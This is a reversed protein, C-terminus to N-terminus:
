MVFHYMWSGWHKPRELFNYIRAQIRRYRMDRRHARYNLPKGLLSVRPQRFRASSGGLMAVHNDVEDKVGAEMRAGRVKSRSLKHGEEEMVAFEVKLKRREGPGGGVVAARGAPSNSLHTQPGPFLFTRGSSSRDQSDASPRGCNYSQDIRLFTNKERSLRRLGNIFTDRLKSPQAGSSKEFAASVSESSEASTDNIEPFRPTAETLSSSSSTTTVQISPAAASLRSTPADGQDSHLTVDDYFPPSPFSSDIGGESVMYPGPDIKKGGSHCLSVDIMGRGSVDYTVAKVPTCCTSSCQGDNIFRLDPRNEEDLSSGENRSKRDSKTIKFDERQEQTSFNEFSSDPYTVDAFPSRGEQNILEYNEETNPRCVRDVARQSLTDSPAISRAQSLKLGVGDPISQKRLDLDSQAVWLSGKTYNKHRLGSSSHRRRNQQHPEFSIDRTDRSELSGSHCEDKAEVTFRKRDSGSVQGSQLEGRSSHTAATCVDSLSSRTSPLVTVSKSSDVAARSEAASSSLSEELSSSLSLPAPGPATGAHSTVRTSRHGRTSNNTANKDPVCGVDSRTRSRTVDGSIPGVGKSPNKKDSTFNKHAIFAEQKKATVPVSPSVFPSSPPFPFTLSGQPTALPSFQCKIIAPTGNVHLRKGDQGAHVVDLQNLIGYNPQSYPSTTSFSDVASDGLNLSSSGSTAASCKVPLLLPAINESGSGDREDISVLPTAPWTTM